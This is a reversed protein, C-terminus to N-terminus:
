GLEKLKQKIQFPKNAGPFIQDPLSIMGNKLMIAITTTQEYLRNQIKPMQRTEDEASHERLDM